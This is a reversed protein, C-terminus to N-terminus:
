AAVGEPQWLCDSWEVVKRGDDVIPEIQHPYAVFPVGYRNFVDLEWGSYVVGGGAYADDRWRVVRAETGILHKSRGAGVIRVRQGVYFASM